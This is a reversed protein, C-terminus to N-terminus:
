VHEMLASGAGPRAKWTPTDKKGSFPETVRSGWDADVVKFITQCREPFSRDRKLLYDIVNDRDNRWIVFLTPQKSRSGTCVGIFAGIRAQRLKVREDRMGTVSFNKVFEPMTFVVNEEGSPVVRDERIKCPQLEFRGQPIEPKPKAM